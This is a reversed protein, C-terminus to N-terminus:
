PRAGEEALGMPDGPLVLLSALLGAAAAFLSAMHIALSLREEGATVASNAQM